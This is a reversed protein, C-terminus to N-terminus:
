PLIVHFSIQYRAAGTKYAGIIYQVHESLISIFDTYDINILKSIRSIYFIKFCYLTKFIVGKYLSIDAVPRCNILNEFFIVDVSYHMKGGLRM